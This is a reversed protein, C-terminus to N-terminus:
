IRGRIYKNNVKIDLEGDKLHQDAYYPTQSLQYVGFTISRLYDESLFPLMFDISEINQWLSIHKRLHVHSEVEQQVLNKMMSREVMKRAIHCDVERSQQVPM